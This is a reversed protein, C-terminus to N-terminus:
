CKNVEEILDCIDEIDDFGYSPVGEINASFDSVVAILTKPDTFSKQSIGQRMVEIKPYSSNKLGELIILDADKFYEKIYREDTKKNNIVMFKRKSFIATGQSGSDLHKFTDTDEDGISFDHGDHKITCVKYGRRTLEPIIKTILTTKGSNKIGSIAIISAEKKEM